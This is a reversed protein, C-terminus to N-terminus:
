LHASALKSRLDRQSDSMGQEFDGWCIERRILRKTLMEDLSLHNEFATASAPVVRVIEGIANHRCIAAEDYYEAVLKAEEATPIATDSLQEMTYKGTEPDPFHGAIPTFKDESKISAVCVKAEDNATRIQEKAAASRDAQAATQDAVQWGGAVMCDNFDQNAKIANGIAAGLAAGAVFGVSGSAAFGSGGNRAMISCRAKAPEFDAVNLGPGPAWTHNACAGLLLTTAALAWKM